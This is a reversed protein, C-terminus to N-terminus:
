ASCLALRIMELRVLTQFSGNPGQSKSSRVPRCIRRGLWGEADKGGNKGQEPAAVARDPAHSSREARLFRRATLSDLQIAPAIAKSVTPQSSLMARDSIM